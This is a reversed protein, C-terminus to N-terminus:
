LGGIQRAALAERARDIAGPKVRGAMALAVPQRLLTAFAGSVDAASAADLADARERPDRVRGLSLLDLAARELRRQPREADLLERVTLQKRARQLSLAQVQQAHAALLTTVAELYEDVREPAMSAEVIFQGCHEYVDASCSCYYAIGRRERIEDMLPSSMGEGFVAAALVAAHHPEALAPIPFGLVVHTQSAGSQRRAGLGGIHRPPAVLNPTGAPLSGFAAEAAAALEELRVDGAAAVVMNAGTYQRGVYGLLDDRSLTEIVRRAGIVPLAMPHSGFCHHDFLKYATSVPDDDDESLEQLIVSRERALEAEPYTGNRVIDGLMSVFRPADAALGRMHYATHDKDTHANVEAGLLEADLNIQQCDRTHTGKFAMHEVVHSIGNSRRSEHLSGTRVFISVSATPAHPLRLALVRVGNALTAVEVSSGDDVAASHAM